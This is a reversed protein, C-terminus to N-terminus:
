AQGVIKQDIDPVEEEPLLTELAPKNLTLLQELFPVIEETSGLKEAVCYIQGGRGKIDPILWLQWPPSFRLLLPAGVLGL